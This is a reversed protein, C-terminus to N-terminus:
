FTAPNEQSVIAATTGAINAGPGSSKEIVNVPASM